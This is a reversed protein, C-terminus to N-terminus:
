SLVMGAATLLGGSILSLVPIVFLPQFAQRWAALACCIPMTVAGIVLAWSAVAILGATLALEAVCLAFLINLMGLMVLSIHGLRLLRRERSAYGGIWQEGKFAPGMFAGWALGITITIWGLAANIM